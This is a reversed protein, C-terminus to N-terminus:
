RREEDEVIEDVQQPSGRRSRRRCRHRRVARRRPVQRPLEPPRHQGVRQEPQWISGDATTRNSATNRWAPNAAACRGSTTSCSPMGGADFTSACHSAADPAVCTATDGTPVSRRGWGPRRAHLRCAGIPTSHAWRAASTACPSRRSASPQIGARHSRAGAHMSRRRAPASCVSDSGPAALAIVALTGGTAMKEDGRRHRDAVDLPEARGRLSTVTCELRPALPMSPTMAVPLRRRSRCGARRRSHQEAVDREAVVRRRQGRQLARPSSRVITTVSLSPPAMKENRGCAVIVAPRDNRATTRCAGRCRGRPPQGRRRSRPTRRSVASPQDGREVLRVRAHNTDRGIAPVVDIHMGRDVTCHDGREASAAVAPRHGVADGSVQGADRGVRGPTRQRRRHGRRRGTSRQSTKPSSPAVSRWRGHATAPPTSGASPVPTAAASSGKSRPRDVGVGGGPPVRRSRADSCARPGARAREAAPRSLHGEMRTGLHQVNAVAVISPEPEWDLYSCWPLLTDHIM